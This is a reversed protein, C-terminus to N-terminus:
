CTQPVIGWEGLEVLVQDTLETFSGEVAHSLETAMEISAPQIGVLVVHEPLHGQLDAVALLDKLGMQHPSVKTALAIPVEDGALRIVTGPVNGSEIADVVLLREVGELRPLLDLGLTGGDLLTVGPPFRYTSALHQVARVGVGDDSMVLNGIGLVLTEPVSPRCDAM